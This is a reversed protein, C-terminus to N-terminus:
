KKLSKEFNIPQLIKHYDVYDKAGKTTSEGKSPSLVILHFTQVTM